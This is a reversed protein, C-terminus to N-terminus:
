VSCSKLLFSGLRNKTRQDSAVAIALVDFPQRHEALPEGNKWISHSLVFDLLKRKENAPQNEFWVPKSELVTV